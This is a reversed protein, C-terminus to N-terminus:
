RGVEARLLDYAVELADHQRNTLGETYIDDANAWETILNELHKIKEAQMYVIDGSNSTYQANRKDEDRLKEIENAAVSFVESSLMMLHVDETDIIEAYLRLEEVIDLERDEKARYRVKRITKSNMAENLIDKNDMM